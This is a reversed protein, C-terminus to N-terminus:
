VSLMNDAGRAKFQAGHLISKAATPAVVFLQSVPELEVYEAAARM